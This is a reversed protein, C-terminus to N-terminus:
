YFSEGNLSIKVFLDAVEQNQPPVKEKREEKGWLCAEADEFKERICM